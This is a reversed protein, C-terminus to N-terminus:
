KDMTTLATDKTDVVFVALLKAPETQSANRSVLHHAGPDEYFAEGAKYTRAPQGEVQSVVQGSLVYAYIFASHAHRHSMSAGGPPYSVELAVLSKGPINPIAHSFNPKVSDGANDAAVSVEALALGMAVLLPLLIRKTKM